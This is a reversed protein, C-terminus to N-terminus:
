SPLSPPGRLSTYDFPRLHLVASPYVSITALVVPTWRVPPRATHLTKWADMWEHAACIDFSAAHGVHQLTDARAARFTLFASLDDTHHLM